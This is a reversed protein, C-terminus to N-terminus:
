KIPREWIKEYLTPFRLIRAGWFRAGRLTIKPGGIQGQIVFYPSQWSFYINKLSLRHNKPEYQCIMPPGIIGPVGFM